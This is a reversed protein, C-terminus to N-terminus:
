QQMPLFKGGGRKSPLPVQEVAPSLFSDTVVNVPTVEAIVFKELNKLGEPIDNATLALGLSALYPIKNEQQTGFIHYVAQRSLEIRKGVPFSIEKGGYEVTLPKTSNNTVYVTDTM